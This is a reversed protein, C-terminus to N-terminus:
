QQTQPKGFMVKWGFHFAKKLIRLSFWAKWTKADEIDGKVDEQIQEQSLAPITIIPSNDQPVAPQTPITQIPPTVIPPDVPQSPVTTVGMQEMKESITPTEPRTQVVQEPAPRNDIEPTAM